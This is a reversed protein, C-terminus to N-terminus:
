NRQIENKDVDIGGGINHLSPPINADLHWSILPHNGTENVHDDEAM